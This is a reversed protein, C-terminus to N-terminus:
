PIQGKPGLRAAFASRAPYPPTFFEQYVENFTGWEAIDVLMVTCKVLDRMRYGHTELTIKINEM